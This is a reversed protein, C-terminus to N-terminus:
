SEVVLASNTEVTRRYTISNFTVDITAGRLGQLTTDFFAPSAITISTLQGTGSGELTPPSGNIPDDTVGDMLM